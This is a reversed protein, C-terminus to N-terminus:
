FFRRVSFFSEAKKSHNIWLGQRLFEYIGIEGPLYLHDAYNPIILAIHGREPIMPNCQDTHSQQYGRPHTHVDGIVHMKAQRCEEWVKDMMAGNFWINGQLAKPDVDDYAIFRKIYRISDEYSGLLFGGSEREGHGRERLQNNIGIWINRRCMLPTM